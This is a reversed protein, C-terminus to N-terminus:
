IYLNRRFAQPKFLDGSSIINLLRSLAFQQCCIFHFYQPWFWLLMKTQTNGKCINRPCHWCKAGPEVCHSVNVVSVTTFKTHDHNLVFTFILLLQVEELTPNVTSRTSIIIDLLHRYRAAAHICLVLFFFFFPEEWEWAHRRVHSDM